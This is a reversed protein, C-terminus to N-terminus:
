GHVLARCHSPKPGLNTVEKLNKLPIELLLKKDEDAYSMYGRRVLWKMDSVQLVPDNGHHALQLIM